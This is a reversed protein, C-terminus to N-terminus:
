IQLVNSPLAPSLPVAELLIRMCLPLVKLISSGDAPYGSSTLTQAM